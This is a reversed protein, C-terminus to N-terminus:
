LNLIYSVHGWHFYTSTMSLTEKGAWWHGAIYCMANGYILSLNCLPRLFSFFSKLPKVLCVTLIWSSECGILKYKLNLNKYVSNKWVQSFFHMHPVWKKRTRFQYTTHIKRSAPILYINKWTKVLGCYMSKKLKLCSDFEFLPHLFILGSSYSSDKNSMVLGNIIWCHHHMCGCLFHEVFLTTWVRRPCSSTPLHELGCLFHEVFLTTWVRCPCSSTSLHESFLWKQGRGPYLIELYLSTPPWFLAFNHLNESHGTTM